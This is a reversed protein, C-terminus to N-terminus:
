NPSESRHEASQSQVPGAFEETDSANDRLTPIIYSKLSTVKAFMKRIDDILERRAFRQEAQVANLMDSVFDYEIFNKPIEEGLRFEHLIANELCFGASGGKYGSPEYRYMMNRHFREEINLLEAKKLRLNGYSM